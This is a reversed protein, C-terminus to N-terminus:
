MSNNLTVRATVKNKLVAKYNSARNDEDTFSSRYRVVTALYSSLLIIDSMFHLFQFGLVLGFPKQGGHM